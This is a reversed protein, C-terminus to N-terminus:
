SFTIDDIPTGVVFTADLVHGTSQGRTLSGVSGHRVLRPRAYTTKKM